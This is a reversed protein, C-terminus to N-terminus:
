DTGHSAQLSPSGPNSDRCPHAIEIKMTVDLCVSPTVGGGICHNSYGQYLAAPAQLQGNVEMYHLTQSHTSSYKQEGYVGGHRPCPCSKGQMISNIYSLLLQVSSLYSILTTATLHSHFLPIQYCHFHTVSKTILARTGKTKEILM